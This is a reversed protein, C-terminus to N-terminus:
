RPMYKNIVPPIECDNVTFVIYKANYLQASGTIGEISIILENFPSVNYNYPSAGLINGQVDYVAWGINACANDELFLKYSAVNVCDLKITFRNKDPSHYMNEDFTANEAWSIYDNYFQYGDNIAPKCDAPAKKIQAAEYYDVPLVSQDKAVEIKIRNAVGTVEWFCITDDKNEKEPTIVIRCYKACEPLNEAYVGKLVGTAGMPIKDMNYWFIQYECKADFDPTITLGYCSFMDETVISTDSKTYEGTKMDVSGRIFTGISSVTKMEDKAFASIGAGLAVIAGIVLVISILSKWKFKKRKYTAM